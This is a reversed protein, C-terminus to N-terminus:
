YNLNEWSSKLEGNEIRHIIEVVKDNCPTPVGVKRGQACVAGNISDVDVPGMMELLAKVDEFHYGREKSISGLSFTLSDPSSTLECM